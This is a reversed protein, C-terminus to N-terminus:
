APYPLLIMGVLAAVALIRQTPTSAMGKAASLIKGKRKGTLTIAMAESDLVFGLFILQKMLSLM